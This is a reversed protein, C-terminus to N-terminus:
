RHLQKDALRDVAHTSIFIGGPHTEGRVNNTTDTIPERCAGPRKSSSLM